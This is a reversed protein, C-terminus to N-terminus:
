RWVCQSYEGVHIIRFKRVYVGSSESSDFDASVRLLDLTAPAELCPKSKKVKPVRLATADAEFYLWHMGEVQSDSSPLFELYTMPSGSGDDESWTVRVLGQMRALGSFYYPGVAPHGCRAVVKLGRPIQLPYEAGDSCQCKGGARVQAQWHNSIAEPVICPTANSHLPWVVALFLQLFRVMVRPRVIYGLAQRPMGLAQRRFLRSTKRNIDFESLRCPEQQRSKCDNGNSISNM